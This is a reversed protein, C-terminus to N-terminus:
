QLFEDTPMKEKFSGMLLTILLLPVENRYSADSRLVLFSVFYGFLHFIKWIKFFCSFFDTQIGSSITRLAPRVYNTVQEQSSSRVGNTHDITYSLNRFKCATIWHRSNSFFQFSAALKYLFIFTRIEVM